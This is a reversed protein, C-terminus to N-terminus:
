KITTVIESAEVLTRHVPCREAIDRLRERDEDSLDGTLTIEREIKHVRRTSCDECDKIHERNYTLRVSVDELKMKKQKAYMRLTMATCAGLAAVLTEYPDPGEDGGVSEDILFEHPGVRVHQAYPDGAVSSVVVPRM